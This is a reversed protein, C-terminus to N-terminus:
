SALKPGSVPTDKMTKRYQQLLGLSGLIAIIARIGTFILVAGSAVMGLVLVVLHFTDEEMGLIKKETKGLLRYRLDNIFEASPTIPKLTSELLVELSDASHNKKWPLQIKM